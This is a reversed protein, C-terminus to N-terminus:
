DEKHLFLVLSRERLERIIRLINAIWMLVFLRFEPFSDVKRVKCEMKMRLFM